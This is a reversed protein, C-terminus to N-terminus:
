PEESMTHPLVLQHTIRQKKFSFVCMRLAYIYLNTVHTAKCNCQTDCIGIYKLLILSELIYMYINSISTTGCANKFLLLLQLYWHM